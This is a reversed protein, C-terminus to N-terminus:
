VDKKSRQRGCSVHISPPELGELNNSLAQLALNGSRSTCFTMFLALRAMMDALAQLHSDLRSVPYETDKENELKWIKVLRSTNKSTLNLPHHRSFYERSM